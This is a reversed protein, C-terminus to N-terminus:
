YPSRKSCPTKGECLEDSFAMLFPWAEITKVEHHGHARAPAGIPIMHGLGNHGFLGENSLGNPSSDPDKADTESGLLEGRDEPSLNRGSGSMFDTPVLHKRSNLPTFIGRRAEGRAWPHLPM